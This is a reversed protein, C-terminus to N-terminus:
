CGPTDRPESMEGHYQQWLRSEVQSRTRRAESKAAELRRRLTGLARDLAPLAGYGLAPPAEPTVAAAGSTADAPTTAGGPHAAGQAPGAPRRRQTLILILGGGVAFGGGAALLLLGLDSGRRRPPPPPPPAFLSGVGSRYALQATRGAARGALERLQSAADSDSLGAAEEGMQAALQGLRGVVQGAVDGLDTGRRTLLDGLADTVANAPLASLAREVGLRRPDLRRSRSLRRRAWGIM